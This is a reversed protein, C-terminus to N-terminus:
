RQRSRSRRPTELRSGSPAQLSFEGTLISGEDHLKLMELDKQIADQICEMSRSEQDHDEGHIKSDKWKQFIKGVALKFHTKTPGEEKNEAEQYDLVSALDERKGEAETQKAENDIIKGHGKDSDIQKSKELLLRRIRNKQKLQLQTNKRAGNEHDEDITEDKEENKGPREQGSPIHALAVPQLSDANSEEEFKDDEYSAEIEKIAQSDFEESHGSTEKQDSAVIATAREITDRVFAKVSGDAEENRIPTKQQARVLGNRATTPLMAKYMKPIGDQIQLWPRSRNDGHKGEDTELRHIKRASNQKTSVQPRKAARIILPKETPLSNKGGFDYRENLSATGVTQKEKEESRAEAETVVEKEVANEADERAEAVDASPGGYEQLVTEAAAQLLKGNSEDDKHEVVPAANNKDDDHNEGFREELKSPHIDASYEKAANSTSYEELIVDAAEEVLRRARDDTDQDDNHPSTEETWDRLSEITEDRSFIGVDEKEQSGSKLLEGAGDGLYEISKSTVDM